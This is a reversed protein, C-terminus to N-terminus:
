ERLMLQEIEGSDVRFETNELFVDFLQKITLSELSAVFRNELEDDIQETKEIWQDLVDAPDSGLYVDRGRYHKRYRGSAAHINFVIKGGRFELCLRTSKKKTMVPHRRHHNSTQPTLDM